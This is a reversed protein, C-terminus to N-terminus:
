GNMVWEVIRDQGWQFADAQSRFIMPSKEGQESFEVHAVYRWGRATRTANITLLSYANVKAHYRRLEFVKIFRAM